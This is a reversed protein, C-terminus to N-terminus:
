KEDDWWLNVAESAEDEIPPQGSRRMIAWSFNQWWVKWFGQRCHILEHTLTIGLTDGDVFAPPFLIITPRSFLSWPSWETMAAGEEGGSLPDGDGKFVDVRGCFGSLRITTLVVSYLARIEDDDFGHDDTEAPYAGGVSGDERHIHFRRKLM